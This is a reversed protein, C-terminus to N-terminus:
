RTWKLLGEYEQNVYKADFDQKFIEGLDEFACGNRYDKVMQEIDYGPPQPINLEHGLLRRKRLYFAVIANAAAEIMNTNTDNDLVIGARGRSQYLMERVAGIDPAIIPIRCTWAEPIVVPMVESISLLMGIDLNSYAKQFGEGAGFPAIRFRGKLKPYKKILSQIADYYDPVNNDKGGKIDFLWEVQPYKTVLYNALRVYQKIDKVPQVNGFLGVHCVNPNKKSAVDFEIREELNVPIKIIKLKEIPAGYRIQKLQNSKCLTTISDAADYTIKSYLQFAEGWKYALFPHMTTNALFGLMDELYIGHETLVFRMGYQRKALASYVGPIGTLLGYYTKARIKESKIAHIAPGRLTRWEEQYKKFDLKNPTQCELHYKHLAKLSAESYLLEDHSFYQIRDAARFFDEVDCSSFADEFDCILDTLMRERYRSKNEGWGRKDFLGDDVIDKRRRLEPNREYGFLRLSPFVHVNSSLPYSIETNVLGEFATYPLIGIRLQDVGFHVPIFSNIQHFAVSAVGGRRYPLGAETLFLIDVEYM